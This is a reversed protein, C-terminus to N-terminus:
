KLFEFNVYKFDYCKFCINEKLWVDVFLDFIVFFYDLFVGFDSWKFGNMLGVIIFILINIIVLDLINNGRIFYEM